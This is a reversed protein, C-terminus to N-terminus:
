TRTDLSVFRLNFGEDPSPVTFHATFRQFQEETPAFAHEGSANRAKLRALCVEDPVDLVHMIHDAGTDDLIQRMWQRFAVTNAPFDLVVSVGANLLEEIHPGLVRKLRAAFHMYDQGTKMDQGFLASLWADECIVITRPSNGLQAALTSKGAAIKGCILHLTPRDEPM